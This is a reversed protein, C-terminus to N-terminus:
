RLCYGRENVDTHFNNLDQDPAQCLKEINAAVAIWM